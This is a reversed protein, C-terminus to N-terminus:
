TYFIRDTPRLRRGVLVNFCAAAGTPKRIFDSVIILNSRTRMLDCIVNAIIAYRNSNINPHFSGIGVANVIGCGLVKRCVIHSDLESTNCRRLAM